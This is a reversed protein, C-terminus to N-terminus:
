GIVEATYTCEQSAVAGKITGNYSVAKVTVTASISFPASYATKSSDPETGDTTYYTATGSGTITVMNNTCSITPAAPPALYETCQHSVSAGKIGNKYGVANVTVASTIAFAASYKTKSSDAASGDITYYISDATPCSITVMNNSVTITPASPPATYTCSKTAVDSYLEGIYAIAKVTVTASLQIAVSYKTKTSDPASGDITYYIADAGSATITVTNGSQSINPAAVDGIQYYLPFKGNSIDVDSEVVDVDARITRANYPKGHPKVIAHTIKAKYRM